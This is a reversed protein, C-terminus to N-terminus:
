AGLFGKAEAPTESSGQRGLSTLILRRIELTDANIGCAAFAPNYPIPEYYAELNPRGQTTLCKQLYELSQNLGFPTLMVIAAQPNTFCDSLAVYRKYIPYSFLSIPDIVLLSPGTRLPAAADRVAAPAPTVVDVWSWKISPKKLAQLKPNIGKVPDVLLDQLMSKISAQGFPRWQFPDTGYRAQWQAVPGLGLNRLFAELDPVDYDTVEPPSQGILMQTLALVACPIQVAGGATLALSLDAIQANWAVTASDKLDPLLREVPNALYDAYARQIDADEYAQYASLTANRGKLNIANLTRGTITSGDGKPDIQGKFRYLEESVWDSGRSRDSWLVIFHRSAVLSALLQPEWKEGRQLGRKDFYCTINRNRLDEELKKAWAVDASSYSIFVDYTFKDAM